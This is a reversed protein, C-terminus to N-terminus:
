MCDTIGSILSRACGFNRDRVIIDVKGCWQRSGAIERVKLVPERDNLTKAGECFIYLHSQAALECQSLSTLARLTHDPRNYAFFAIPALETM